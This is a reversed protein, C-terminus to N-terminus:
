CKCRPSWAPAETTEGRITSIRSSILRTRWLVCDYRRGGKLVGNTQLSFVSTNLSDNMHDVIRSFSVFVSVKLWDSHVSNARQWPTSLCGHTHSVSLRNRRRRWVPNVKFTKHKDGRMWDADSAAGDTRPIMARQCAEFHFLSIFMLSSRTTFLDVDELVNSPCRLIAVIFTRRGSVKLCPMKKILLNVTLLCSSVFRRWLPAIILPDRLQSSEWGFHM